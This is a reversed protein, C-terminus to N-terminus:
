WGVHIHWSVAQHGKRRKLQHSRQRSRWLNACWSLVTCRLLPVIAACSQCTIKLSFSSWDAPFLSVVLNSRWATDQGLHFYVLRTGRAKAAEGSGTNMTDPLLSPLCVVRQRKWGVVRQRKWGLTIYFALANLAAQQEFNSSICDLTHGGEIIIIDGM